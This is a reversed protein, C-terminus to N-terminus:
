QLADDCMKPPIVIQLKYTVVDDSLLLLARERYYDRVSYPVASEHSPWGNTIFDIISKMVPDTSTEARIETLCDETVPWNQQVAKVHAAMDDSLEMDDICSERGVLPKRSLDDAIVLQKGPVYEVIPNFRMARMLLRHCRLPADEIRKTNTLPVLPRYTTQIGENWRSIKPIERM